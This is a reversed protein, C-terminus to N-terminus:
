RASLDTLSVDNLSISFSASRRFFGPQSPKPLQRSESDSSLMSVVSDMTPRKTPNEQVCSLAIELCQMSEKKDHTQLLVPDILEMSTGEIWNQWAFTPLDTGEGLGLGSNRKGTIIELVLVGFSYVDTKVSFRGHMAYEPAMYGYTGVVRRTVAQTNDFDFQRAMGFDSIKPLMQEDLLVNSSKLDRHIIPFESGEHLYLLGRSVGVIINYRKEWDLQKQKIPDFLFRDLSTNPIFEYVLLRESEKISFGFLKVLNKHQLKTMLLVETKFEANGQGSHISLRKVAIELGDPLHGKYVVGFGGEGIKNTLSFDDTAVRITEFDFHLSDTSEFENEANEKLTKKKRRRKLYIFLFVLGLIIAVIPVVAFILTKSRDKSKGQDSRRTNNNHSSLPQKQESTVSLDFFPYVEFRFYCSPNTWWGGTKGDCCTPVGAFIQALCIRCDSESLDPTCQALAYITGKVGAAFKVEKTENAADIKAGLSDLLDGLGKSFGEKDTVSVNSSTYSFPVPEMQGLIIRSTYRFMCKELWINAEIINPCSEVLQKAATTICSICDQNPKVDGRCLAIANVEGNISINYFGNITPTLDPLSSILRNLNLSYSTNSTFNGGDYYCITHVTVNQQAYTVFFTLFFFSFFSSLMISTSAM